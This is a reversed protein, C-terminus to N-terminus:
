CLTVIMAAVNGISESRDSVIEVIKARDTLGVDVVGCRMLDNPQLKLIQATFTLTLLAATFVISCHYVNTIHKARFDDPPLRVLLSKSDVSNSNSNSNAITDTITSNDFNCEELEFFIRNLFLPRSSHYNASDIFAPHRRLKNVYQRGITFSRAYWAMGVALLLVILLSLKVSNSM